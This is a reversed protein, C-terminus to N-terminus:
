TTLRRFQHLLALTSATGPVAPSRSPRPTGGGASRGSGLVLDQPLGEWGIGTAPVFLIDQLM